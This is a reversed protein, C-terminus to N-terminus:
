FQGLDRELLVKRLMLYRRGHYETVEGSVRFRVAQGEYEKIIDEARELMRCPLVRIPPERLTNDAEFNIAWWGDKQEPFIRVLRDVVMKGRGAWVPKEIPRPAVSPTEDADALPDIIPVAIHKGPRDRMLDLLVDKSNPPKPDDSPQSAASNADAVSALPTATPTKAPKPTPSAPVYDAREVVADDLLIFSRGRYVSTEGSIKLVLNPDERFLPELRELCKSQLVFRSYKPLNADSNEFRLIYWNATALREMRCRVDLVQRGGGPLMTVPPTPKYNKPRIVPASPRDQLMSTLDTAESTAAPTPAPSTAPATFPASQPPLHSPEVPADAAWASMAVLAALLTCTSIRVM